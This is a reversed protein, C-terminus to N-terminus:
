SPKQLTSYAIWNEPLSNPELPKEEIASKIATLTLRLDTKGEEGSYRPRKDEALCEIFHHVVNRHAKNYYNVQSVWILDDGEDIRYYHTKGEEYLVLPCPKIGSIAAGAGEGLVEISAGTGSVTTSFGGPQDFSGRKVWIGSKEGGSYQWMVSTFVKEEQGYKDKASKSWAYIRNIEADQMLYRATATAHPFHDIADRYLGGCSKVPDYRFPIPAGQLPRAEPKRRTWTGMTEALFLPKGIAGQDILERAKMHSTTFVYSEGVMLTVGAKKAASIMQDAQKISECMPKEVLVHKGAEIAAVTMTAHLYPPTCIDVMDIEKDKLLDNYDLFRKKVGFDRAMAEVKGQQVDCLAVLEAREDELYGAAHASSVLGCGIIAARIKRM